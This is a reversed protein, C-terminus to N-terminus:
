KSEVELPDKADSEEKGEAKSEETEEKNEAESTEPKIEKSESENGESTKTPEKDDNEVQSEQTDATSPEKVDSEEVKDDNEKKEEASKEEEKKAANNDVDEIELVKDNADTPKSEESKKVKVPLVPGNMIEPMSYMGNVPEFEHVKKRILSMVGIRTLVHQRSFGERPVGDAFTDANDAGPECLHRMFLAVYAKFQRETKQRLDRVLWLSNFCDQPPMGYRMIATLFAKRQRANFGLVEINGAVRALLPPLPREREREMRARDRNRARAAIEDDGMGEKDEDSSYDSYGSGDDWNNDDRPEATVIGNDTYNVQKRLRKGKGLSRAVDEQHQEYHHRLLRVWYAPDSNEEKVLIEREVDDEEDQDKTAYSAVKFSSLYDNSWNEKEEVGENSRDLLKEVAEDDYHIAEEKSSDKEDKFLDETGFRLIDDLEQKTLNATKGGM